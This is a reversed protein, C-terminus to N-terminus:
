VLPEPVDLVLLSSQTRADEPGCAMSNRYVNCSVQLSWVLPCVLMSPPFNWSGEDRSSVRSPVLKQQKNKKKEKGRSLFVCVCEWM